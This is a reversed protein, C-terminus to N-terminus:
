SSRSSLDTTTGAGGGHVHVPAALYTPLEDGAMVVVIKPCVNSEDSANCVHPTSKQPHEGGETYDGGTAASRGRWQSCALMFLAVMVLALMAGIGCFLYILPSDLRWSDSSGSSEMATTNELQQGM